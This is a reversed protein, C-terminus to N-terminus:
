RSASAAMAHAQRRVLAVRRMWGAGFHAWTPLHRMLALRADCVADILRVPDAARCAALCAVGIRGDAVGGVATELWKAARSVGSNIGADLVAYGVGPPLDDFRLPDAYDHRYIAAVEEAEIGFVSRRPQHHRLRWADYTAQTVGFNTRGGPDRPDASRGGEAALVLRLAESFASTM